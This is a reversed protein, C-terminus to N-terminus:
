AQVQTKKRQGPLCILHDHTNAHKNSNQSVFSSDHAENDSNPETTTHWARHIDYKQARTTATPPSAPSAQFSHRRVRRLIASNSMNRHQKRHMMVLVQPTLGLVHPRLGLYFSGARSPHIYAHLGHRHQQTTKAMYTCENWAMSHRYIHLIQYITCAFWVMAFQLQLQIYKMSAMTCVVM